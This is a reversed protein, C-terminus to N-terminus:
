CHRSTLYCLDEDDLRGMAEGSKVHEVFAENPMMLQLCYLKSKSSINDIGHVARPPFVVCDGPRVPFRKGNCFAIGEGALVFFLEHASRHIHLPTRHEPEFVEVGFSLSLGLESPDFVFALKNTQRPFRFAKFEQLGRQLLVCGTPSQWSSSNPHLSTFASGCGQQQQQPRSSNVESTDAMTDALGVPGASAKPGQEAIRQQSQVSRLIRFAGAAPAAAHRLLRGLHRTVVPFLNHFSTSPKPTTVQAQQRHRPMVHKSSEHRGIASETEMEATEPTSNPHSSYLQSITKSARQQVGGLMDAAEQQSLEGQYDGLCGNALIQLDAHSPPPAVTAGPPLMVVSAPFHFKLVAPPQDAGSIPRLETTNHWAILSDGAHLERVAGDATEITGTGALVYLVDIIRSSAVADDTRTGSRDDPRRLSRFGPKRPVTLSIKEVCEVSAGFPLESQVTGKSPGLLPVIFHEGNLIKASGALTTVIAGGFPEKSQEITPSANAACRFRQWLKPARVRNRQRCAIWTSNLNLPQTMSCAMPKNM